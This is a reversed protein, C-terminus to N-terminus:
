RGASSSFHAVVIVKFWYLDVVTKNESPFEKTFHYLQFYRV